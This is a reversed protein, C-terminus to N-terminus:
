ELSADAAASELEPDRNVQVPATRAMLASSVLGLLFTAIWLTRSGFRQMVATGSGPGIAYGLGFSMTYYGMYEGRRGPPAIETVYAASVPFLIMEGFTWVVVTAIIEPLSRAWALAGFGAGCLLSGLALLRQHPWHATAGNLRVELLVILLTNITFMLGYTAESFGLEEVMFLPLTGQHQFFVLLVPLLAFMFYLLRRHSAAATLPADEFGRVRQDPHPATAKLPMAILVAGSLLSTAGNVWFLARFSEMALVGGVAPGVSMGLNIALRNLAFGQKRHREGALEGVLAMSAPRFAETTFALLALAAVVSIWSRALPLMWMVLGSSFLSLKLVRVAGLRDSMKGTIPATILAAVGYGSLALGARAPELGVNRTLHLMMFPLVMTGMRNILATLALVWSDRPLERLDRWPNLAGFRM